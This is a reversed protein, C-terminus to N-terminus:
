PVRVRCAQTRQPLLLLLLRPLLHLRQTAHLPRVPSLASFLLCGMIFWWNSCALHLGGVFVVSTHDDFTWRSYFAQYTVPPVGVSGFLADPHFTSQFEAADGSRLAEGRTQASM